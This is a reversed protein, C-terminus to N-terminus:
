DLVYDVFETVQLLPRLNDDSVLTARLRGADDRWVSVGELNDHAGLTTEFELREDRGELDFSRLRTRFGLVAFWRELLYLRGDPGIDAGSVLYQGDRRLSFPQTWRDDEFVYVPFPRELTGSREPIAYLRGQADAALAELGSNIQLNRFAQPRAIREPPTAIDAHKMVRHQGEYAVYFTEGVRAIAEADYEGGRLDGGTSRMLRGFGDVGVDDVVGDAGRSLTGRFWAGRDSLAVFDRGGEGLWLASIGGAVPGPPQWIHRGLFEAAAAPASVLAACACVACFRM